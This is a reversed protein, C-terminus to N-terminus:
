EIYSFSEIYIEDDNLLALDTDTITDNSSSLFLDYYEINNKVIRAKNIRTFTLSLTVTLIIIISAAISSVIPFIRKKHSSIAQMQNLGSFFKDVNSNNNSYTSRLKLRDYKSKIINM